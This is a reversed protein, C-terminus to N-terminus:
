SIYYLRDLLSSAAGIFQRTQTTEIFPFPSFVGVTSVFYHLFFFFYSLFHFTTSESKRALLRQCSGGASTAVQWPSDQTSSVAQLPKGLYRGELLLPHCEQKVRELRTAEPCKIDGLPSLTNGVLGLAEMTSSFILM